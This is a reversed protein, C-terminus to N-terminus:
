AVITAILTTAGSIEVLGYARDTNTSSVDLQVDQM